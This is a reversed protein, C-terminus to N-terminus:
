LVLFIPDRFVGYGGRISDKPGIDADDTRQRSKGRGSERNRCSTRPM